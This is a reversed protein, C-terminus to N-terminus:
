INFYPIHFDIIDTTHHMHLLTELHMFVFYSFYCTFGHPAQLQYLLLLLWLLLIVSSSFLQAADLSSIGSFAGFMVQLLLCVHSACLLCLIVGPTMGGHHVCRLSPSCVPLFTHPPVGRWCLAQLCHSGKLSTASSVQWPIESPAPFSPYSHACVSSTSTPTSLHLCTHSINLNFTFCTWAM